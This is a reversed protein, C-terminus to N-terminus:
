SAVNQKGCHRLNKFESSSQNMARTDMEGFKHTAIQLILHNGRRNIIVRKVLSFTVPVLTPVVAVICFDTFYLYLEAAIFVLHM